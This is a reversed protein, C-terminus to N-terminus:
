KPCNTAAAMAANARDRETDAKTTLDKAEDMLMRIPQGSIPPTHSALQSVQSQRSDVKAYQSDARSDHRHAVMQHTLKCELHSVAARTAFYAVVWALAGSTAVAVAVIMVIVERYPRCWELFSEIQARLTVREPRRHRQM